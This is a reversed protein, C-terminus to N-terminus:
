CPLDGDHDAALVPYAAGDGRAERGLAGGDVGGAPAGLRALHRM